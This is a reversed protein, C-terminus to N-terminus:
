MILTAFLQREDSLASLFQGLDLSIKVKTPCLTQVFEKLLYYTFLSLSYNNCFSKWKFIIIKFYCGVVNRNQEVLISVQDTM